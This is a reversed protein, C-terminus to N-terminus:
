ENDIAGMPCVARCLNCNECGSGIIIEIGAMELINQPCVAVCAGCYGCLEASIIMKVMVENPVHYFTRENDLQISLTINIFSIM